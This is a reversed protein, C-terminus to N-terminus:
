RGYSGPRLMRLSLSREKGKRMPLSTASAGTQPLFPRVTSKAQTWPVSGRGSRAMQSRRQRPKVTAYARIEDDPAKFVFYSAASALMQRGLVFKYGYGSAGTHGSWLWCRGIGPYIEQGETVNSQIEEQLRTRNAFFKELPTRPKCQLREAAATIDDRQKALTLLAEDM